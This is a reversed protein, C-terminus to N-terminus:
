HTYLNNKVSANTHFATLRVWDVLHMNSVRWRCLARRYLLRCTKQSAVWICVGEWFCWWLPQSLTAENNAGSSLPPECSRSLLPNAGRERKLLLAASCFCDKEARSWRQQQLTVVKSQVEIYISTLSNLGWDTMLGLCAHIISITKREDDQWQGRKSMANKKKRASLTQRRYPM